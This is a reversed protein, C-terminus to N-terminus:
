SVDLNTSPLDITELIIPSELVNSFESVLPVGNIQSQSTKEPSRTHQESSQTHQEPSQITKEPSQTTKEPSQTHKEPLPTTKESVITHDTPLSSILLSDPIPPSKSYIVLKEFMKPAPNPREFVLKVRRGSHSFTFLSNALIFLITGEVLKLLILNFSNYINPSYLKVISAIPTDASISCLIYMVVFLALLKNSKEHRVKINKNRKVIFNLVLVKQVFLVVYSVLLLPFFSYQMEFVRLIGYVTYFCVNTVHIYFLVSNVYYANTLDKRLIYAQFFLIFAIATFTILATNGFLTMLVATSAYFVSYQWDSFEPEFDMGFMGHNIQKLKEEKEVAAAVFLLFGLLM